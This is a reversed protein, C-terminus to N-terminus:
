KSKSSKEQRRKKKRKICEPIRVVGEIELVEKEKGDFRWGGGGSTYRIKM